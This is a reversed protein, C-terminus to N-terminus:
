LREIVGNDETFLKDITGVIKGDTFDRAETDSEAAVISFRRMDVAKFVTLKPKVSDPIVYTTDLDVRKGHIDDPEIIHPYGDADYLLQGEVPQKDIANIGKYIIM